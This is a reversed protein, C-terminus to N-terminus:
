RKDLAAGDVIIRANVEQLLVSVREIGKMEKEFIADIGQFPGEKIVVAEGPSFRHAKVVAFGEVLRACVSDIIGQAVPIPFNETGVVNRVGRTYKILRYDAPIGFRVFIYGPFLPSVVDMLKRRVYRREKIKPNFVEFGCESLKESVKDENKPKLYLLYWNLM